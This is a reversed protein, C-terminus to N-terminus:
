NVQLTHESSPAVVWEVPGLQQLWQGFETEPHVRVQVVM